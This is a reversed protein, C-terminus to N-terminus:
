FVDRGDFDDYVFLCADARSFLESFKRLNRDGRLTARGHEGEGDLVRPM